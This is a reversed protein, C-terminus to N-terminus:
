LLMQRKHESPEGFGSIASIMNFDAGLTVPATGHRSLTLLQQQKKQFLEAATNKIDSLWEGAAYVQTRENEPHSCEAAPKTTLYDKGSAQQGAGQSWAQEM